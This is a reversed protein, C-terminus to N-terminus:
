KTLVRVFFGGRWPSQTVLLAAGFLLTEGSSYLFHDFFWHFPFWLLFPAIGVCCVPPTFLLWSFPSQHGAAGQEVAWYNCLAAHSNTWRNRTQTGGSAFAWSTGFWVPLIQSIDSFPKLNWVEAFCLLHVTFQKIGKFASVKSTREWGSLFFHPLLPFFFLYLSSFTQIERCNM